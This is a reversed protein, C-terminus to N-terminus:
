RKKEVTGSVLFKSFMGAVSFRKDKDAQGVPAAGLGSAAPSPAIKSNKFLGGTRPSANGNSAAATFSSQLSSCSVPPFSCFCISVCM